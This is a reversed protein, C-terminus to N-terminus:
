MNGAHALSPNARIKHFLRNQWTAIWSLAKIMTTPIPLRVGLREELKKQHYKPVSIEQWGSFLRSFEWPSSAWPYGLRHIYDGLFKRSHYEYLRLPNPTSIFVYGGPRTVRGLEMILDARARRSTVFEIVSSCVTLDFTEDEFPLREGPSCDLFSVLGQPLDYGTARVKAAEVALPSADVGVVQTPRLGSSSALAVSFGGTGCGVDLIKEVPGVYQELLWCANKRHQDVRRLEREMFQDNQGCAVAYGLAAPSDHVDQVAAGQRLLEIFQTRFPERMCVTSQSHKQFVAPSLSVLSPM